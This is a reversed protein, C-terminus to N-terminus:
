HIKAGDRLDEYTSRKPFGKEVLFSIDMRTCMPVEYHFAAGILVFVVDKM